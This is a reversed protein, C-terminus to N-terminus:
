GTYAGDIISQIISLYVPIVYGNFLFAFVDPCRKDITASM